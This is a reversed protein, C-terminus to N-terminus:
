VAKRRGFGFFGALATGFLWAAAPVPTQNVPGTASDVGDLNIRFFGGGLNGPNAPQNWTAIAIPAQNDFSFGNAINSGAAFNNYAAMTFFYNGAALTPLAFGSDFYTQTSPNINANDDNQSILAGTDTNWLATIPDFNTGPGTHTPGTAMFSDTWVRVNTAATAVVFDVRIVDNHNSINGSFTFMAANASLSSSALMLALGLRNMSLM